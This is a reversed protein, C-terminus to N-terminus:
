YQCFFLLQWGKDQPPIAQVKHTILKFPLIKRQDLLKPRIDSIGITMGFYARQYVM